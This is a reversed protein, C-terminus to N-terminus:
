EEFSELIQRAVDDQEPPLKTEVAAELAARAEDTRGTDFACMGRYYEAEARRGSSSEALERYPPLALECDHLRDRAVTAELWRVEERRPGQEYTLCYDRATDIADRYAGADTLAEVKLALVEEASDSHPYTALYRDLAELREQAPRGLGRQAQITALLQVETEALAIPPLDDARPDDDGPPGPGSAQPDAAVTHPPDTRVTEGVTWSRWYSGADVSESGDPWTVSVSGETVSVSVREEHRSVTFRTGTVQVIVSGAHVRLISPRFTPAVSVDIEGRALNICLVDPLCWDMDVATLERVEVSVGDCPRVTEVQAYGSSFAAPLTSGSEPPAGPVQPGSPRLWVFVLLAAAAAGATLGAWRQQRRRRLRLIHADADELRHLVRGTSETSPESLEAALELAQKQQEDSPLPVVSGPEQHDKM